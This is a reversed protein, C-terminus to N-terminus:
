NIAILAARPSPCLINDESDQSVLSTKSEDFDHEAASDGSNLASLLVEFDPTRLEEITTSSPISYKAKTLSTCTDDVKYESVLCQGANENIKHVGDQHDGDLNKMDKISPAVIMKMNNEAEHDLTLLSSITRILSQNAIDSQKLTSTAISTLKEFTEHNTEVGDGAIAFVSDISRKQQDLISEYADKCKTAGSRAKALCQHLHAELDVKGNTVSSVVEAYKAEATELHDRWECNVSSAVNDLSSLELQLNCNGTGMSELLSSISTQVQKKKRANSSDLMEAIKELMLDKELAASVEFEKELEYLKRGTTLQTEEAIRSLNSAHIGLKSTFSTMAETMSKTMQLTKSHTEHLQQAYKALKEEETFLETQVVKLIGHIEMFKEEVHEVLTTSNRLVESTVNSFAQQYGEDLEGAINELSKISSGYSGNFNVVESLLGETGQTKLLKERLEATQLQQDDYLSQLEMHHKDKIELELELNEVKEVMAKMEAEEALYRNVPVYMGNKERAAYLEQRLRDIESYLDKLLEAKITRQNVQNTLLVDLSDRLLRTLKSDRYPVHGSHDVLANIVRGLTLLSKNIEGAERAREEKAGSRSINESGALDVLNLKGCKVLEEGVSSGEEKIYITISFITHSRSSTKNLLTAATQRKASGKELIKYIEKASSVLEQELGRIFVGGKGDELLAIPKKLKEDASATVSEDSDALLDMIEENYLELFTVKMSYDESRAELVEFIQQVARPIIGADSPFEGDESVMGGEMTYTKGTGTQGYAFITCNYGELVENVIPTVASDFLDTQECTPGFVKDFQYSKDIQKHATNQVLSVLGKKENCSIVAHSVLHKEDENLPRCRLIVQVNVGKDNKSNNNSNAESPVSPEKFSRTRLSHLSSPSVPIMSSRRQQQSHSHEMQSARHLSGGEQLLLKRPSPFMERINAIGRFSASVHLKQTAGPILIVLLSTLTSRRGGQLGIRCACVVRGAGFIRFNLPSQLMKQKPHHAAAADADIATCASAVDCLLPRQNLLSSRTQLKSSLFAPNSTSSRKTAFSHSQLRLGSVRDSINDQLVTARESGRGAASSCTFKMNAIIHRATPSPFSTGFSHEWRGIAGGRWPFVISNAILTILAGASIGDGLLLLSDSRLRVFASLGVVVVRVSTRRLRRFRLYDLPRGDPVEGRERADM